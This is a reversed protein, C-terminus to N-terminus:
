RAQKKHVANVHEKLSFTGSLVKNCLECKVKNSKHHVDRVHKNLSEKLVVKGCMGCYVYSRDRRKTGGSSDEGNRLDGGKSGRRGEFVDPLTAPEAVNMVEGCFDCTVGDNKGTAVSLLANPVLVKTRSKRCRDCKSFRKSFDDSSPSHNPTSITPHEAKIAENELRKITPLDEPNVPKVAYGHDLFLAARASDLKAEDQM